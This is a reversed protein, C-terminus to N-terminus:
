VTGEAELFMQCKRYCSGTVFLICGALVILYFTCNGDGWTPWSGRTSLMPAALFQVWPEQGSPNPDAFALLDLVSGQLEVSASPLSPARSLWESCPPCTSVGVGWSCVSFLPM